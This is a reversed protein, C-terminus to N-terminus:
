QKVVKRVFSGENATIKVFYVGSAQASIDLKESVLMGLSNYVSVKLDTLQNNSLYLQGTTPNPYIRVLDLQNNGTGLISFTKCESMGDCGNTSMMCAYNGSVTPMFTQNTAGEIEANGNDCDVWQYTTGSVTRDASLGEESVTVGTTLANQPDGITVDMTKSIMADPQCISNGITLTVSYTGPCDYAHSLNFGNASNGDGFDWHASDYNQSTNTFAVMGSGQEANYDSITTVFDAAPELCQPGDLYTVSYPLFFGFLMVGDAQLVPVGYDKDFWQYSVTTTSIPLDFGEYALTETKELVSKMKLVNPFTGYPTTLSGWGEVTNTRETELNYSFPVNLNSLDITFNGTTTYSDNYVMPFNYVEDPNSYEITLPVSIGQITATLGRMRHAFSSSNVRSHEVVNTLAYDMIEIDDMVAKSLNFNNNFQSNCNFIYFNTLCWSFKYGADNPNQWSFVSQSDADLGSYNWNHNAGTQAFNMGIFGGAKTMTFEEEAVAYDSSDYTIQANSALGMFLLGLFTIKKM